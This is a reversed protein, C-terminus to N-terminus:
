ILLNTYKYNKKPISFSANKQDKKPYWFTKKDKFMGLHKIILDKPLEGKGPFLLKNANAITPIDKKNTFRRHNIKSDKPISLNKPLIIEYVSKRCRQNELEYIKQTNKDLVVASILPKINKPNILKRDEKPGGNCKELLYCEKCINPVDKYKRIDKMVDTEWIEKLNKEYVNGIYHDQWYNLFVKGNSKVYLRGHGLDFFGGKSIKSINKVICLALSNAIKVDMAYKKNNTLIKDRLEKWDEITLANCNSSTAPRLIFWEEFNTFNNQIKKISSYFEGLENINEKTAVTSLFFEKKGILEVMEIIEKTKKPSHFSIMFLDVFELIELNNKILTGNTNLIAKLNSDKIYKLIDALEKKLLPEGGSIRVAEIGLDSAEKIVSKIKQTDMQNKKDNFGRNYCFYCSQNCETNIEIIIEKPVPM